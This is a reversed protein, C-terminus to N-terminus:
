CGAFFKTTGDPPLSAPHSRAEVPFGVPTTGFGGFRTARSERHTAAEVSKRESLMLERTGEHRERERELM